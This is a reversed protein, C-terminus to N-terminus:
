IMKTDKTIISGPKIVSNRSIKVGNLITVNSGICVGDEIIVDDEKRILNYKKSEMYNGIISTDYQGSMITVKSGIKVNNGIVINAADSILISDEGIFVNDGVYINKSLISIGKSLYVKKGCSRFIAKKTPMVFLRYLVKNINTFTLYVTNFLVKKSTNLSIRIINYAEEVRFLTVLLAYVVVGALISVLLAIESGMTVNLLILILNNYITITIKGMILACVLCKIFTYIIKEIEFDKIRKVLNIFLLGICFISSISTALAIGRHGLYRVLTLSLVINLGIAIAGNIMPTKTDQLSYFVKGLIERIGFAVMGISFFVLAQSTLQTAYSDFAGREFLLSVIPTALLIAGVTIPVMLVIISNISKIVYQEFEDNNKSANLKSLTPFIVTAISAVFLASVFDTLKNAYNLASISGTALTSALTKDIISNIQNVSVGILIPGSLWLMKKIYTDKINIIPTYKYKYKIKVIVFQFIFQSTMAILTGIPLIYINIKSSLVMSIIIILNFPISILGPVIFNGKIQFLSSIITNIGIFVGGFIMIRTFKIAINLQEGEFGIAFINVLQRAFVYGLLSLILSLILVITLVNNTFKYAKKEGNELNMNEYYLPIFSTSIASAIVTFVVFPINMTTIYIDSYETAGYIGGLVLERAFGLIKAFLTIVILGMTVKAVKSM